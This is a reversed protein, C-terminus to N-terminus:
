KNHKIGTILSKIGFAAFGIAALTILPEEKEENVVSVSAAYTKTNNEVKPTTNPKPEVKPKTNDKFTYPCDKIGDGNMDYHDHASYGHHYHYEGTSHNTHGGHSDTGGSHAVAVSCPLLAVLLLAIIKKKMDGDREFQERSPLM